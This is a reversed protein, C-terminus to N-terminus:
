YQFRTVVITSDKNGTPSANNGSIYLRCGGLTSGDGLV